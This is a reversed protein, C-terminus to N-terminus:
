FILGTGPVPSIKKLVIATAAKGPTQYYHSCGIYEGTFEVIIFFLNIKKPM